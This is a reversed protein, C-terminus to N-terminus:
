CRLGATPHTLSLSREVFEGRKVVVVAGRGGGRGKVCTGQGNMETRGRTGCRLASAHEDVVSCWPGPGACAPLALLHPHQPHSTPCPRRLRRVREARQARRSVEGGTFTRRWMSLPKSLWLVPWFFLRSPQIFIHLLKLCLSDKGQSLLLQSISRMVGIVLLV